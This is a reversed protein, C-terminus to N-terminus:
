QAAKKFSESLPTPEPSWGATLWSGVEPKYDRLYTAPTFGTLDKFERTMHAQDAFGAVFALDALSRVHSGPRAAQLAIQVRMVRQLHKAGYGCAALFQRHMTRPHWGLHKALVGVSLQADLSLRRCALLLLRDDASVDLMSQRVWGELLAQRQQLTDAFNLADVFQTSVTRLDRLRAQGDLLVRASCGFVVRWAGPLFRLGTILLGERLEAQRVRTDPGVVQPEDADYLMIDSCGDPIIPTHVGVKCPGVVSLWHCAVIERLDPSPPYERYYGAGLAQSKRLFQEIM